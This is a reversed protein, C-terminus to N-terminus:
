SPSCWTRLTPTSPEFGKQEVLNETYVLPIKKEPSRRLPLHPAFQVPHTDDSEIKSLELADTHSAHIFRGYHTRLTTEAVGTQESLWNLNVGKTLAVSVYTDKTAYLDRLRIGLARQAACFLKYFSRQDVPEGLTNKFVYDDPAARLEIVQELIEVNRPTIRVVRAAAATKPAAEAGLSRSREVFLTGASLDVSRVRLAVAESPRVGTYFLTFLFAYYPFCTRTM